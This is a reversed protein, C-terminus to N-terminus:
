VQRFSMEQQSKMQELEDRLSEIENKQTAVMENQLRSADIEFSQTLATVVPALKQASLEQAACLEECLITEVDACLQHTEQQAQTPSPSAQECLADEM